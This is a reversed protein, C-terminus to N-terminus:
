VPNRRTVFLPRRPARRTNRQPSHESGDNVLYIMGLDEPLVDHEVLTTNLCAIKGV